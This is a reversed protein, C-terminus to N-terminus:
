LQAGDTCRQTRGPEACLAGDEGCARISRSRVTRVVRSRRLPPCVATRGPCFFSSSTGMRTTSPTAESAPETGKWRRWAISTM